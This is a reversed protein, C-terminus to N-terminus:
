SDPDEIRFEGHEDEETNKIVSDRLIKGEPTDCNNLEKQKNKKRPLIPLEETISFFRDTLMM